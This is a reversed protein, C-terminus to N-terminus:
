LLHKKEVHMQVGHYARLTVGFDLALPVQGDLMRLTYNSLVYQMAALLEMEALKIGMCLRPGYGFMYNASPTKPGFRAAEETGELFREPIFHHPMEWYLKNRHIGITSPM